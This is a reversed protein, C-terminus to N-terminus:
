RRRAAVILPSPGAPIIGAGPGRHPRTRRLNTKLNGTALARPPVGALSGRGKGASGIEQRSLHATM